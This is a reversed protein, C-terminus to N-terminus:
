PCWVNPRNEMALNVFLSMVFFSLSIIKDKSRENERGWERNGGRKGRRERESARELRM